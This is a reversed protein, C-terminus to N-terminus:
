GLKVTMIWTVGFAVCNFIFNFQTAGITTIQGSYRKPFLKMQHLILQALLLQNDNFLSRTVMAYPITLHQEVDRSTSLTHKAQTM